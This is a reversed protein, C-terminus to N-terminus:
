RNGPSPRCASQKGDKTDLLLQFTRGDEAYGCSHVGEIIDEPVLPLQAFLHELNKRFQEDADM